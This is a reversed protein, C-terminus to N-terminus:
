KTADPKILRRDIWKRVRSWRRADETVGEKPYFFDDDNEFMIERAMSEAIGFQKSLQHWDETDIKSLDIGRKHGIVGLACFEGEHELADTILIKEPMADMAEALEKLFAQGRAGKIASNVAGRWRIVAWQDDCDDNYGSRGM